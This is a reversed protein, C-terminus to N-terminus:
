SIEGIIASGLRPSDLNFSVIGDSLVYAVSLTVAPHGMLGTAPVRPFQTMTSDTSDAGAGIAVLRGSTGGTMRIYTTQGAGTTPNASFNTSTNAGLTPTLTDAVELVCMSNFSGPKTVTITTGSSGGAVVGAWLAYFAGAGSHTKLQTWTVNTCTPSTIQGTTSDTFLLLTHGSAAAVITISTAAAGVGAATQIVDPITLGSGGGSVNVTTTAGAGSATVGAGTFNLTTVASSLTSGEDQTTITTGGGGGASGHIRVTNSPFASGIPGSDLTLIINSGAAVNVFPGLLKNSGNATILQVNSGWAWTNSGTAIPVQGAPPFGGGFNEGGGDIIGGSGGLSSSGASPQIRRIQTIKM